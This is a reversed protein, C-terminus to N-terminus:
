QSKEPQACTSQNQDGSCLLLKLWKEALSAGNYTHFWIKSAEGIEISKKQNNAMDLLHYVVDNESRVKLIPPEPHGFLSEYEDAEYFFGQLLPKGSALVEWGTGGWITRPFEIFEGVGVNVRNLLWMLNRRSTRPIWVVHPDLELDRVLKKTNLVDPGYELIVLKSDQNPMENIVTKFARVVWDNNKSHMHNQACIDANWALRCHMLVSFECEDLTTGINDIFCDGTSEPLEKEVYVMPMSLPKFDLGLKSLQDKTMGMDSTLINHTRKLGRIQRIRGLEYLGRTFISYLRPAYFRSVGEVGCAYPSFIDAHRGVKDLIAPGYGSSIIRDYSSFTAGLQLKSLFPIRYTRKMLRYRFNFSYVFLKLLWDPLSQAPGNFMHTQHIYFSWVPLNFTDYDPKFHDLSCVGDNSYLLLHADHGLGRFYRMLAFGNNNMNGIIAIKM